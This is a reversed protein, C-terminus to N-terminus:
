NFKMGLGRLCLSYLLFDQRFPDYFMYSHAVNYFDQKFPDHFMYSHAINYFDQKFPDYFM